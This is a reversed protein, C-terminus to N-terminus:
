FFSLKDFRENELRLDKEGPFGLGDNFHNLDDLFSEAFGVIGHFDFTM